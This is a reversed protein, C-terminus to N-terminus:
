NKFKTFTEDYMKIYTIKKTEMRGITQIHENPNMNLKNIEENIKMIKNYSLKRVVFNPLPLNMMGVKM